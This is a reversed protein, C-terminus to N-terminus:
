DAARIRAYLDVLLADIAEAEARLVPDEAVFPHTVVSVQLLDRAVKAGHMAEYQGCTMTRAGDRKNSHHLAPSSRATLPSHRPAPIAGIREATEADVVVLRLGLGETLFESAGTMVVDGAPTRSRVARFHVGKRGQPSNPRLLKGAYGDQLGARHDVDSMTQGLQLRRAQLADAVSGRCNVILPQFAPADTM